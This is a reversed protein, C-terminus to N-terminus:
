HLLECWRFASDIASCVGDEALFCELCRERQLVLSWLMAVTQIVLLNPLTPDTDCLDKLATICLQVIGADECMVLNQLSGTCLSHLAMMAEKRMDDSMSRDQFRAKVVSVAGHQGLWTRTSQCQQALHRLVRVAYEVQHANEGDKIFSLLIQPGGSKKFDAPSLVSMRFLVSIAQRQLAGLQPPNWRRGRQMKLRRLSHVAAGAKVM